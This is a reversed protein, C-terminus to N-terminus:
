DARPADVHALAESPSRGTWRRFARAFARGDGFGLAKALSASSVGGTQIAALAREKRAADLLVRHSTRESALRRQLTRTTTRLRRAITALDSRGRHLEGEICARVDEVISPEAVTSAELRALEAFARLLRPNAHMSPARAVSPELLFGDTPSGFRVPAGFAREHARPDLPAGHAFDVGVVKVPEGLVLSGLRVLTVAMFEIEQRTIALAGHRRALLVAYRKGIREVSVVDAHAVERQLAALTRYAEGLNPASVMAHAAFSRLGVPTALGARLGLNPDPDLDLAARWLQGVRDRPVRSMAQIPFTLRIGASEALARVDFGIRELGAAVSALWSADLTLDPRPRIRTRQHRM